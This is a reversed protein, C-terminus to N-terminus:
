RARWYPPYIPPEPPYPVFRVDGQPSAHRPYDRCYRHGDVEWYCYRSCIRRGREWYCGRQDGYYWDRGYIATRESISRGHGAEATTVQVAATAAAALLAIAITSTRRM